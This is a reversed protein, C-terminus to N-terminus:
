RGAQITLNFESTKNMRGANDIGVPGDIIGCYRAVNWPHPLCRSPQLMNTMPLSM